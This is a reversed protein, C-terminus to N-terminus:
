ILSPNEPPITLADFATVKACGVTSFRSTSSEIVEELDEFVLINEGLIDYYFEEGIPTRIDFNHTGNDIWYGNWPRSQLNGGIYDAAEVLALQKGARALRWASYIGAFGAGAIIIDYNPM